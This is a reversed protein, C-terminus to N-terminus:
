SSSRELAGLAAGALVASALPISDEDVDYSPDHWGYPARGQLGEGVFLYCGPTRSALFAFDDGGLSPRVAVLADPGLTEDVAAAVVQTVAPDNVLCPVVEDITLEVTTGFRLGAAGAVEHLIRRLDTSLAPDVFRLTGELMATSPIVNPTTGARVVGVSLVAAARGDVRRGLAVQWDNVLAALTSIADSGLHPEAGHGGLGNVVARVTAISAMVPGAALGIQGARLAPQGHFGLVTHLEMRDLAGSDLVSQAGTDVEEAPQFLLAISATPALESLLQAAGALVAVQADHGCAHAVGPNVSRYDVTKPDDIPLADLCCRLLVQPRPGLEAVVGTRASDAVIKWGCAEVYRRASERSRHEAFGLEPHQHLDRRLCVLPDRLELAREVLRGGCHRTIGTNM